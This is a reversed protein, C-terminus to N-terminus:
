SSKVKKNYDSDQDPALFLPLSEIFYGHLSMPQVLLMAHFNQFGPRSRAKVDGFNLSCRRFLGKMRAQRRSATGNVGM